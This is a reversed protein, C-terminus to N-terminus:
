KSIKEGEKKEIFPEKEKKRREKNKELYFALYDKTLVDLPIQNGALFGEIANKQIKEFEKKAQLPKTNLCDNTEPEKRVSFFKKLENNNVSNNEYTSKDNAIM